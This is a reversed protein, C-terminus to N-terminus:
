RFCPVSFEMIKGYFKKESSFLRMDHWEPKGIGFDYANDPKMIIDEIMQCLVDARNGEYGERTYTDLIDKHCFAYIVVNCRKIESHIKTAYVDYFIYTGTTTVTGEIYLHSFIHEKLAKLVDKETPYKNKYDCGLIIDRIDESKCLLPTLMNKYQGLEILM